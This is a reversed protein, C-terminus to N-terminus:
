IASRMPLLRTARGAPRRLSRVRPPDVASSGSLAANSGGRERAWQAAAEILRDAILNREATEAAYANEQWARLAELLALSSLPLALLLIIGTLLNRVSFLGFHM